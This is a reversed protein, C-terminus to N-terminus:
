RLDRLEQALERVGVAEVDRRLPFREEGPYVVFRKAPQVDECADVFGRELRPALGRKVEVAWVGERPVSLVLDIEAGGASRYFYAAGREPTAAILQEIVFGEWSAGVVPHSLLDDFEDIGLLTHLLGTDRLYVRPSKVLRKRTNGHWPTIRRIMFLDSLVDIYRSVTKGDIALSRGFEAANLLSGNAHALMTWLRRLTEAPIRPGLEPIDRELFTRIFNERWAVSQELTPALISQPYGGRLWLEEISCSQQLEVATFPTLEAYAIRGALSEGSQRLLDGSASGLILFRTGADGSQLRIRDIIGRLDRYLEPMRRVEDLVILKGQHHEFYASPEWLRARDADRELDLYISSRDQAIMHALTTTGAQRPGLIAVAPFTALHKEVHRQLERAILRAIIACCESIALNNGCLRPPRRVYRM